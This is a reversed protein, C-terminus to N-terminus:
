ELKQAVLDALELGKRQAGALRLGEDLLAVPECVAAPEGLRDLLGECEGVLTVTGVRVRESCARRGLQTAGRREIRAELFRQRSDLLREDRQALSSGREGRVELAEVRVRRSLFQHLAADRRDVVERALM